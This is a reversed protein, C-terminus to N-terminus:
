HYRVYALIGLAWAAFPIVLALLIYETYEVVKRVPPSFVRPPVITAALLGLLAIGVAIGGTILASATDTAPAHLGYKAAAGIMGAVATGVLIIAHRRDRFARARLILIAAVAGLVVLQAWEREGDPSVAVWSAPIAVAAVGLLVGTLVTNSKRAAAAVQEGTLTVDSPPGDEVPSVTDEPQGPARAFIDRGTISGFTQRPVNAMRLAVAPAASVAVLVGILVAVAVRPGPVDWFMRVLAVAAAGFGASIIAAAASWYRGTFRVMLWAGALATAAALFAHPAGPSGGPPVTAAALVAAALAAWAAGETIVRGARLRAGVAVTGILCIATAAFLIPVLLASEHAWRLRWLLMGAVGLAGGIIVAAVALATEATVRVFHESAYQALATSVNEVVPGYREAKGVPVLALVDGDVINHGSLSVDAALATMGAARAFEYPVSPLEPAGRGRLVKNIATVTPDVLTNLPVAAPLVLDIQHSEGALISVRCSPPVEVPTATRTTPAAPAPERVTTM